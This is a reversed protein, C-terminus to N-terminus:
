LCLTTDPRGLRSELTMEPRRVAAADRRARQLRGAGRRRAGASLPRPPRGYRTREASCRGFLKGVLWAVTRLWDDAGSLARVAKLCGRAGCRPQHLRRQREEEGDEAEVQTGIGCTGGVFRISRPYNLVILRKAQPNFEARVGGERARVRDVLEAPDADLNWAKLYFAFLEAPARSGKAPQRSM